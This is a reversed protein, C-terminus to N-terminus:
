TGNGTLSAEQRTTQKPSAPPASPSGPTEAPEETACAAFLILGAGLLLAAKWADFINVM